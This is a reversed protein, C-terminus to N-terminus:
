VNRKSSGNGSARAFLLLRPADSAPMRGDFDGFEAVVNFGSSALLNKMEALSYMRVSELYKSVKGTQKSTITIDKEIREGNETIRRRQLVDARETSSHTEAIVNAILQERNLYDIFLIGNTSCVRCWERLLRRHAEDTAFYGFSTFFSCILDFQNSAFPLSRMDAQVRTTGAAQRLLTESLDIGITHLKRAQMAQVHRGSGCAVDLVCTPDSRDPNLSQLVGFIFAVQMEAEPLDRHPYLWLYEEGFWDAYWTM